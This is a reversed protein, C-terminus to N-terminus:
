DRHLARASLNLAEIARARTAAYSQGEHEPGAEFDVRPDHRTAYALAGWPDFARVVELSADLNAPITVASTELWRWATYRTGSWEGKKTLIPEAKIPLAGISLGRILGAKLQKWATEVYELGASEKALTARITIAGASVKAAIVQGIPAARDHQMLLPLPLDFLAGESVLQDGHRDTSSSTATGEIVREAEDVAKFIMAPVIARFPHLQM